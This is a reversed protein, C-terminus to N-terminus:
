TVDISDLKRRFYEVDFKASLSFSESLAGKNSEKEVKFKLGSTSINKTQVKEQVVVFTGNSTCDCTLVHSHPNQCLRHRIPTWQHQGYNDINSQGYSNNGFGFAKGRSSLAITHNAGCYVRVIHVRKLTNAVRQPTSAFPFAM